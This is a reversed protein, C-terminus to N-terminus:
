QEDTHDLVEFFFMLLNCLTCFKAARNTVFVLFNSWIVGIKDSNFQNGTFLVNSRLSATIVKLHRFPKAGVYKDSFNLCRDCNYM